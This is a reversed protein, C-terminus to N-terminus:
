WVKKKTFRRNKENKAILSPWKFTCVFNEQALLSFGYYSSILTQYSEQALNNKPLIQVRKKGGRV